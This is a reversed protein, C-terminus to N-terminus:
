RPSRRRRPGRLLLAGLCLLLLTAGSAARGTSPPAGGVTCSCGDDGDSGTSVCQGDITCVQNPGCQANSSCRGLKVCAGEASCVEDAACQSSSTCQKGGSDSGPSWWDGGPGADLKVAGGRDRQVTGDAPPSVPGDGVVGADPAPASGSCGNAGPAPPKPCGAAPYLYRIGSLDDSALTRKSIDGFAIAPYMTAGKVSSDDLGLGGGALPTLENQVDLISKTKDGGTTNWLYDKANVAISYGSLGGSMNYQYYSSSVYPMKPNTSNKFLDSAATLWFVFIADKPSNFAKCAADTCVAFAAGRKVSLQTCNAKAWTQFARDIAALIKPDKLNASVRYIVPMKQWRLTKGGAQLVCYAAAPASWALTLLLALTVTVPRRM